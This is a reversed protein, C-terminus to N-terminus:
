ALRQQGQVSGYLRAYLGNQKLLEEHEGHESIYGDEFVYARDAQKVASLRHAIILTTRRALFQEMAKHLRFETESDLASTAEDLIVLRPDSVIMRAIALRQRQGGSLRVGKNGIRTDLGEALGDVFDSLQAVELANWLQDDQAERGLTLNERVSTDFLAPHQLVVAVNERVNEIGAQQLPVGDYLVQGQSPHHLGLLIKVLTSKGGGSAGVFAIKEGAKVSLSIGKLVPMDGYSFHINELLLGVTKKPGSNKLGMTKQLRSGYVFPNAQPPHHPEEELTLLSNIRKLAAKAAYLGYQMELLENVPTLMFWLYSGVAVLQGVTLDSVIVAVMAAARFLDVGVVFLMFSMRSSADNRWSFETSTNRVDRAKDLLRQLYHKERNAARIEQIGELTETLAQQFVDLSQNENKKLEKIQKGLKATFVIVIPNLFLILLALQWHILILVFATGVLTLLAVLLRSVTSGIFMDLTNLDSVFRSSVSGSGLTEYEEMSVRGLKKLLSCRIRFVVDKSILTFQRTQWINFVLSLVRLVISVVLVVGIYFFPTLWEQPFVSSLFGVVIGPSNLLVEDVLLALLLPTPVSALTALVAVINAIILEKRFGMIIKRIRTWTYIQGEPSATASTGSLFADRITIIKEGEKILAYGYTM